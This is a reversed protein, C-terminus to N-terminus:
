KKAKAELLKRIGLLEAGLTKLEYLVAWRYAENRDLPQDLKWEKFKDTM